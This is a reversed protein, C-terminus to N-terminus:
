RQIESETLETRIVLVVEAGDSVYVPRTTHRLGSRLIISIQLARRGSWPLRFMGSGGSSVTGLGLFNRQDRALLTAESAQENRVRVSIWTEPRLQEDIGWPPHRAGSACAASGLVITGLLLLRLSGM